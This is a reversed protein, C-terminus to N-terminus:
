VVIHNAVAFRQANRGHAIFIQTKGHKWIRSSFHATGCAFEGAHSITHERTVCHIQRFMLHLGFNFFHANVLHQHFHGSRFEFVDVINEQLHIVRAVPTPRKQIPRQHCIVVVKAHRPFQAQFAPLRIASL